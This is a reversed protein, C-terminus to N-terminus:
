IMPCSKLVEKRTNGHKLEEIILNTGNTVSMIKGIISSWYSM